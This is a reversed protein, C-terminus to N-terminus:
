GRKWWRMKPAPPPEPDVGSSRIKQNSGSTDTIVATAGTDPEDQEPLEDIVTTTETIPGGDVGVVDVIVCTINDRGGGNNAAAVLTDVAAGPAEVAALIEAIEDDTVEGSLGDSCLLYRHGVEPELIFQDVEVTPQAGLARTVINRQPHVEAEAPTLRGERVMSEVLSHDVTVQQLVRNVLRYVRSDGVNIVALLEKSEYMVPALACMTTGMGQLEPDASARAIIESNALAFGEVLSPLSSGAFTSCLTEVAIQSAVEGGRHGGMGDAVIALPGDILFSDQNIARLQGVHSHAGISLQVSM